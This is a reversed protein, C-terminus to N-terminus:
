KNEKKISLTIGDGERLLLTDYKDSELLTELFGKMNRAITVHKHGTGPFNEVYGMYLVDDCILVGGETLMETIYPLFVEYKGKPGDMFVLDYSGTLMPLIEEADGNIVNVREEMGLRIFNERAEECRDADKEVTYLRAEPATELMVAGSYGVATGIELIREPAKIKVIIRLLKETEECIVPIRRELAREKIKGLGVREPDANRRPKEM